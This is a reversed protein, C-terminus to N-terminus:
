IREVSFCLSFEGVEIKQFHQYILDGIDANISDSIRADMQSMKQELEDLLECHNDYLPQLYEYLRSLTVDAAGDASMHERFSEMVICLDKHYTRETM